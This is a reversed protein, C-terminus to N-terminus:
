SPLFGLRWHFTKGETLMASHDLASHEPRLRLQRLNLDQQQCDRKKGKNAQTTGGERHEVKMDLQSSKQAEPDEKSLNM